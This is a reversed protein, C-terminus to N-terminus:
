KDEGAGPLESHHMLQNYNSIGQALLRELAGYDEDVLCKQIMELHNGFYQLNKIINSRNTILIDMMM